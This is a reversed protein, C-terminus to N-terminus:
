QINISHKGYVVYEKLGLAKEPMEVHFLYFSGKYVILTKTYQRDLIQDTVRPVFCFLAFFNKLIDASENRHMFILM